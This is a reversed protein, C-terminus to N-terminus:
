KKLKSVTQSELINLARKKTQLFEDLSTPENWKVLDQRWTQHHSVHVEDFEKIKSEYDIHEKISVREMLIQNHPLFAIVREMTDDDYTSKFCSNIEIDIIKSHIEDRTKKLKELQEEAGMIEIDIRESM